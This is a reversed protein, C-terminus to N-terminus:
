IVWNRWFQTDYVQQTFLFKRDCPLSSTKWPVDKIIWHIHNKYRARTWTRWMKKLNRIEPALFDMYRFHWKMKIKIKKNKIKKSLNFHSILFLTRIKTEMSFNQKWLAFHNEIKLIVLCQLEFKFNTKRKEKKNLCRFVM